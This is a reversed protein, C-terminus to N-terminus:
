VRKMEHYSIGMATMKLQKQLETIRGLKLMRDNTRMILNIGRKFETKIKQEAEIYRNIVAAKEVSKFNIVNSM